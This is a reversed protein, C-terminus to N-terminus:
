KNPFMWTYSIDRSLKCETIDVSILCDFKRPVKLSMLALVWKSFMIVDKLIVCFTKIFIKCDQKVPTKTNAINKILYANIALATLINKHTCTPMISYQETEQKTELFTDSFKWGTNAEM